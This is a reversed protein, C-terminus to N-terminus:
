HRTQGRYAGHEEGPIDLVPRVLEKEPQQEHDAPRIANEEAGIQKQEEDEVLQHDHRLIEEDRDPSRGVLFVARHLQREIREQAARKDEEGDDGGIDGGSREIQVLERLVFERQLKLCPRERHHEEPEGHERADPWQVGPRRGAVDGRRGRTRHQEGADHHFEAGVGRQAHRHIEERFAEVQPAFPDGHESDDSNNVGGAHGKRCRSRFNTM